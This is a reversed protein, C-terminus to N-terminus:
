FKFRRDKKGYLARREYEAGKRANKNYCKDCILNLKNFGRLKKGCQKCYNGM